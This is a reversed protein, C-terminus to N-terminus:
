AATSERLGIEDLMGSLSVYSFMEEHAILGLRNHLMHVHSTLVSIVNPRLAPDPLERRWVQVAENIAQAWEGVPGQKAQAFLEGPNKALRRGNQRGSREVQAIVADSFGLKTCYRHWFMMGSACYARALEGDDLALVAAAVACSALLAREWLGPSGRLIDLVTLSSREFLRETMEMLDGDGYRGFEPEYRVSYVGPARLPEVPLPGDQEGASALSAAQLGFRAQDVPKEEARLKTAPGLLDSLMSWAQCAAAPELGRMRLRIHPGAQWYRMFFSCPPAVTTVVPEVVDLIVRDYVSRATSPLHLHWSYWGRESALPMEDTKSM